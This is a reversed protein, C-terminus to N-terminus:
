CMGRTKNCSWEDSHSRINLHSALLAARQAIYTQSFIRGSILAHVVGGYFDM